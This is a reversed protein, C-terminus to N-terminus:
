QYYSSNTFGSIGSSAWPPCLHPSGYPQVAQPARPTGGGKKGCSMGCPLATIIHQQTQAPHQPQLPSWPPIECRMLEPKKSQETDTPEHQSCAHKKRCIHTRHSPLQEVVSSPKLVMAAHIAPLDRGAQAICPIFGVPLPQQHQEELSSSQTKDM